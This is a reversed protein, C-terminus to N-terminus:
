PRTSPPTSPLPVTSPPPTSSSPPSARGSRATAARRLDVVLRPPSDVWFVTPEVAEDLDLVVRAVARERKAIGIVRVLAPKLIISRRWLAPGPLTDFLDVYLREPASLRGLDYRVREDLDLVVRMYDGHPAFRVSKLQGAAEAELPPVGWALSLTLGV